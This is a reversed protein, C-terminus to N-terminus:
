LKGARPAGRGEKKFGEIERAEKGNGRVWGM